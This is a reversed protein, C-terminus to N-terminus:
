GTFILRLYRVLVSRRFFRSWKGRDLHPLTDDIIASSIPKVPKTERAGSRGRQLGAVTALGHHVSAPILEVSAAWKFLSKIRNINKNTTSRALGVPRKAKAHECQEEDSMWSGNVIANRLTQLALPGFEAAPTDAFLRVLPRIAATLAAIESTPTKTADVHYTRAHAMFREVLEAVSLDWRAADCPMKGAGARLQCLLREYAQKSRESGFDGQLVIETRSGDQRYISVTARGTQKHKRYTPVTNRPRSM